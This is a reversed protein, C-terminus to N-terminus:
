DVAPQSPRQRAGKRPPEHDTRNLVHDMHGYVDSFIFVLDRCYLKGKVCQNRRNLLQWNCEVSNIVLRAFICKKHRSTHFGCKKVQCWGPLVTPMRHKARPLVRCRSERPFDVPFLGKLAFPTENLDDTLWGKGVAMRMCSASSRAVRPAGVPRNRPDAVARV